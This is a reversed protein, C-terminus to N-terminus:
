PFDYGLRGYEDRRIEVIRGSGTRTNYNRAFGPM